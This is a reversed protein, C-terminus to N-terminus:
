DPLALDDKVYLSGSKKYGPRTKGGIRDEVEVSAFELEDLCRFQTENSCDYRPSTLWTGSIHYHGFFWEKPQWFDWMRQLAKSTRSDVCPLKYDRDELKEIKFRDLIAPVISRPAEHTLVIDPKIERYLKEAALLDEESLEEDHWWSAGPIRWMWDISYAGGMFFANQGIRGFKGLHNPSEAAALPSDHNGRIFKVYKPLNEIRMFGFGFDGLQIVYDKDLKFRKCQRLFEGVKGHIDGCIALKM